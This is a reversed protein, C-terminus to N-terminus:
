VNLDRGTIKLLSFTDRLVNEFNSKWEIHMVCIIIFYNWIPIYIGLIIYYIDTACLHNLCRISCVPDCPTVFDSSVTYTPTHALPEYKQVNTRLIGSKYVLSYGTYITFM